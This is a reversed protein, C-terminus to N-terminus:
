KGGFEEQLERMVQSESGMEQEFYESWLIKIQAPTPNFRRGSHDIHFKGNEVSVLGEFEISWVEVGEMEKLMDASSFKM